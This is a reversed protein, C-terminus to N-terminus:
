AEGPAMVQGDQFVFELALSNQEFDRMRLTSVVAGLQRTMAAMMQGLFDDLDAVSTLGDFCKRMVENTRALQRISGEQPTEPEQRPLGLMRDSPLGPALGAVARTFTRESPELASSARNTKLSTRGIRLGFNPVRHDSRTENKVNPKEQNSAWLLASLKFYRNRASRNTCFDPLVLKSLELGFITVTM